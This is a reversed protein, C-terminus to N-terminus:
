GLLSEVVSPLFLAMKKAADGRHSLLEKEETGMQAFTREQGLPLFVPDYGFGGTGRPERLLTGECVGRFTWSRSRDSALLVAVCVFRAERRPNEGLAELLWRIRGEDDTGMRASHIGPRNGLAPVELGSDEALVPLDTHEGWARAKLLANAEYTKGDEEVSPLDEGLVLRVPAERLLRTWERLKGPNTSALLVTPRM